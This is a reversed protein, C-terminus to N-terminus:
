HKATPTEAAGTRKTQPTPTGAPKPSDKPTTKATPTGAAPTTKATAGPKPTGLLAGAAEKAADKAEEAAEEIAQGAQEVAQRADPLGPAQPMGPAAAKPAAPAVPAAAPASGTTGGAGQAAPAPAQGGTIVPPAMVGGGGGTGGGMGGMTSGRGQVAIATGQPTVPLRTGTANSAIVNSLNVTCTRGGANPSVRFQCCFLQKVSAPIPTTDSISLMLVRMQSQNSVKSRFTDRNAARNVECAGEDGGATDANLCSSDWQLDMQIGSVQGDNDPMLVCIDPTDGAQASGGQLAITVASAPAAAAAVLLTSISALVLSPKLM